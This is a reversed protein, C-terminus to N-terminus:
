RNATKCKANINQLVTAVRQPFHPTLIHRFLQIARLYCVNRWKAGFHTEHAWFPRKNVSFPPKVGRKARKKRRFASFASQTDPPWKRSELPQKPCKFRCKPHSLIGNGDNGRYASIAHICFGKCAGCAGTAAHRPFVFAM